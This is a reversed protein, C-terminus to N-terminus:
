KSPKSPDRHQPVPMVFPNPSPLLPLMPPLAPQHSGLFLYDYPTHETFNYESDSACDILPDPPQQQPSSTQLQPPAADLQQTRRIAAACSLLAFRDSLKSYSGSGSNPGDSSPHRSVSSDPHAFSGCDRSTYHRAMRATAEEEQAEAWCIPKSASNPKATSSGTPTQAAATSTRPQQPAPPPKSTQKPAYRHPDDATYPHKGKCNPNPKFGQGSQGNSQGFNTNKSHAAAIHAAPKRPPQQQQQQPSSELKMQYNPYAALISNIENEAMAVTDNSISAIDM